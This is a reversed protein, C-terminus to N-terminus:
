HENKLDFSELSLELKAKLKDIEQHEQITKLVQKSYFKAEIELTEINCFGDEVYDFFDKLRYLEWLITYDTDDNFNRALDNVIKHTEHFTKSNMINSCIVKIEHIELYSSGLNNLVVNKLDSMWSKSRFNITIVDFYLVNNELNNLLEESTYLWDEFESVTIKGVLVNFIKLKLAEM